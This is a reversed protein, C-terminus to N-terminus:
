KSAGDKVFRLLDDAMRASRSLLLLESPEIAAGEVSSRSLLPVLDELPDVPPEGRVDFVSLMESLTEHLTRVGEESTLPVLRRALASGSATSCKARLLELVRPFALLDFTHQNM